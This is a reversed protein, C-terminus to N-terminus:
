GMSCRLPLKRSISPPSWCPLKKRIPYFAANQWSRRIKASIVSSYNKKIFELTGDISNNDIVVIQMHVTSEMLSEICHKIWQMGNYTVIIAFIEKM